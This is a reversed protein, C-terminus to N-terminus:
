EGAYEKTATILDEPKILFGKSLNPPIQCSIPKGYAQVAFRLVNTPIIVVSDELVFAWYGAETVSLGSPKWAQYKTFYCDTEIYINGTEVWRRDRKVEVTRKGALLDFVLSEGVQGYEFDLDFSSLNTM